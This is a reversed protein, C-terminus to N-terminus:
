KNQQKNSTLFGNKMAEGMFNVINKETNFISAPENPKPTMTKFDYKYGETYAVFLDELQEVTIDKGKWKYTVLGKRNNEKILQLQKTYSKPTGDAFTEDSLGTRDSFEYDPLNLAGLMNAVQPAEYHENTSVFADATSDYKELTYYQINDKKDVTAVLRTNTGVQIDKVKNEIQKVVSRAKLVGETPKSTPPTNAQKANQGQRALDAYEKFITDVLVRDTAKQRLEDYLSQDFAQNKVDINAPNIQLETALKNIDAIVLDRNIDYVDYALSNVAGNGQTTRLNGITNNIGDKIGKGYAEGDDLLIGNAFHTEYGINRIQNGLADQTAVPAELDKLGLITGDSTEFQLNGTSSYSKKYTGDIINTWHKHNESGQYYKSMTKDNFMKSYEDFRTQYTNLDDATNKISAFVQNLQDTKESKEVAGLGYGGSSPATIERALNAALTRRELLSEKLINQENVGNLDLSLESGDVNAANFEAMKNDFRTQWEASIKRNNAFISDIMATGPQLGKSLGQTFAIGLKGKTKGVLGAGEILKTNINAM